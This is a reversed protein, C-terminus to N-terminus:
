TLAEILEKEGTAKQEVLRECIQRNHAAMEMRTAADPIRGKVFNEVSVFHMGYTNFDGINPTDVIPVIGFALYEILKTPCSVHNVVMDDRLIFGFHCHQYVENLEARTASAVHFNPHARVEPAAANRMVEVDPTYMWWDAHEVARAIVNLMEPVKQWKQTGGAYIVTPRGDKYPRVAESGEELAFIPLVIVKARLLERYKHALYNGMAQSVVIVRNANEAATRECDDHIRASYFDNHMRFEEPVVGHVDLVWKLGSVRLVAQAVANPMRLVSHFYVRKFRRALLAVARRQNASSLTINLVWANPAAREIFPKAEVHERVDCYVRHKSPFLSDIAKVRQFYGDREREKTPYPAFFLIGNGSILLQLLEYGRVLRSVKSTPFRAARALRNAVRQMLGSPAEPAKPAQMRALAQAMGTTRAVLADLDRALAEFRVKMRQVTEAPAAEGETSLYQEIDAAISSIAPLMSVLPAPEDIHPGMVLTRLDMTPEAQKCAIEGSLHRFYAELGEVLTRMQGAYMHHTEVHIPFRKPTAIAFLADQMWATVSLHTRDRWARGHKEEFRARNQAAFGQAEVVDLKGFSASGWHHIYVDRAVHMAFGGQLIRVCHDDDEYAGPYFREDLAGVREILNRSFLVCYYSLFDSDVTLGLWGERRRVAFESLAAMDLVTSGEGLRNRDGLHYPIPIGQENNSANTLPGIADKDAAVLYDLWHDTVIVDSNLLCIHTITPDALCYEIGINNGGSFGLNKEQQFFKGQLGHQAVANDFAAKVAVREPQRSANDIAAVVFETDSRAKVLSEIALAFVEASNFTVVVIGVRAKKSNM